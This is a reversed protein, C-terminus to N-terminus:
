RDWRMGEVLQAERGASTVFAVKLIPGASAKESCRVSYGHASSMSSAVTCSSRELRNGVARGNGVGDRIQGNSSDTAGYPASIRPEDGESTRLPGGSTIFVNTSLTGYKKCPLLRNGRQCPSRSSPQAIEMNEFLKGYIMRPQRKVFWSPPM